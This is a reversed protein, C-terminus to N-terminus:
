KAGVASDRFGVCEGFFYKVRQLSSARGNTDATVIFWAQKVSRCQEARGAIGRVFPASNVEAYVKRYLWARRDARRQIGHHVDHRIIGSRQIVPWNHNQSMFGAAAILEEREVHM